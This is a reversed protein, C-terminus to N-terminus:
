QNKCEPKSGSDCCSEKGCCDDDSDCHEDCDSDSCAQDSAYDDGELDEDVMSLNGSFWDFAYPIIKTRFLKGVYYEEYIQQEFHEFEEAVMEQADYEEDLGELTKFFSFFSPIQVVETVNRTAGTKKNRQSKTIKKSTLCKGEKWTIDTGKAYLFNDESFEDSESSFYFTKELIENTFYDNSDFIFQISYGKNEEDGTSEAVQICRIDLLSALAVEDEAQIAPAITSCNRLVNLWFCPIGRISASKPLNPLYFSKLDALDAEAVTTSESDLPERRGTIIEQRKAYLPDMLEQYKKELQAIENKLDTELKHQCDQYFKLAGLRSRIQTVESEDLSSWVDTESATSEVSSKVM